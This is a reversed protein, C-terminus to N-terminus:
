ASLHDGIACFVYISPDEIRQAYAALFLRATITPLFIFTEFSVPFSFIIVYCIWHLFVLIGLLVM